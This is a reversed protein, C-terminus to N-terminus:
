GRVRARAAMWHGADRLGSSIGHLSIPETLPVRVDILSAAGIGLALGNIWIVPLAVACAIPVLFPRGIRAGYWVLAAAAVLRLALPIPVSQEYGDVPAGFVVQSTWERWLNPAAVWSLFALASTLGVAIWTARWDRRFPHWLLGIAPTVKTLGIVPWAVPQELAVVVAYALVLNINGAWVDTTVIWVLPPLLWHYRRPVRRLLAIAAAMLMAAWGFAFVPWPLRGLPALLQLFPPPYLFSGISGVRAGAYPDVAGLAVWYAHSDWALYPVTLKPSAAAVAVFGAVLLAVLWPLAAEVLAAVGAGPRTEPARSPAGGRRMSLM